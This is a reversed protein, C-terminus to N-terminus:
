YFMQNNYEDTSLHVMSTFPLIINCAKKIM